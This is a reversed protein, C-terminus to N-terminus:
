DGRPPRASTGSDTNNTVQNEDITGDEVNQVTQQPKVFIIEPTFIAGFLYYEIISTATIFWLSGELYRTKGNISGGNSELEGWPDAEEPPNDELVVEDDKPQFPDYPTASVPPVFIAFGFAVIMLLTMFRKM